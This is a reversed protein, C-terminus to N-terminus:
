EEMDGVTRRFTALAVRYDWVARVRAGEARNFANQADLLDNMTGAGAAYRERETELSESAHAVLVDAAQISEYAEVLKSYATWVERRVGLVLREYESKERAHTSRAGSVRHGRANGDYLPYEVYLRVSWEEDQSDFEDGRFGVGADTKVRPSFASQAAAINSGASKIRKRAAELEPRSGVAKELSTSIDINQPNEVKGPETSIATETEVPLGMATNLNGRAVRIANRAKVLALEADAVKVEARIVDLHPVVGEEELEAAIALNESTRELNGEAVTRAEMVSILTYYAIHVNLTIDLRATEANKIAADRGTEAAELKASREGGDFLTYQAAIGLTWDDTPGIVTPTGPRTLGDPLFAHKQWRGYGANLGVQPSFDSRAEGVNEVAINIGEAAIRGTPNRELAIDVCKDLSLTEGEGPQLRNSPNLSILTVDGGSLSNTKEGAAPVTFMMLLLFLSPILKFINTKNM